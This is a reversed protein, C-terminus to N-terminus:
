LDILINGASNVVGSVIQGSTMRVRATQAVAANNLAQGEGNVSFGEGSATVLVRQGAKVRWAQRVTSTTVLQVPAFDRLKIADLAQQINLMALPPLHALRGRKININNVSLPTGRPIAQTAVVYNGTAQVPVQLYLKENGCRAMVSLNGWIRANGPMSLMPQLCVPYQNQLTRITVSVDDSISSLRTAFFQTIQAELNAAYAFPSLLLLTAVCFRLLQKM